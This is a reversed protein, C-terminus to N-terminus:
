YCSNRYACVSATSNNCCSPTFHIEADVEQMGIAKHLHLIETSLAVKDESMVKVRTLRNECNKASTCQLFNAFINHIILGGLVNQTVANSQLIKIAIKTTKKWQKFRSQKIRAM